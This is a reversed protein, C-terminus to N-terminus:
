IVFIWNDKILPKYNENMPLFKPPEKIKEPKRSDTRQLYGVRKIIKNMNNHLTYLNFILEEDDSDNQKRRGSRNFIVLNNNSISFSAYTCSLDNYDDENCLSKRIIEEVLTTYIGNVHHHSFLTTDYNTLYLLNLNKKLEEIFKDNLFSNFKKCVLKYKGIDQFVELLTKYNAMCINNKTFYLDTRGFTSLILEINDDNLFDFISEM